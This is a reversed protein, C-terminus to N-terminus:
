YLFCNASAVFRNNKCRHLVNCCMYANGNKQKQQGQRGIRLAVIALGVNQTGGGMISLSDRVDLQRRDVYESREVEPVLPLLPPEVAQYIIYFLCQWQSCFCAFYYYLCVLSELNQGIFLRFFSMDVHEFFFELICVCGFHLAEREPLAFQEYFEDVSLAVLIGVLKYAEKHAREFRCKILRKRRQETCAQFLAVVRIALVAKRLTHHYLHQRPIQLFSDSKRM